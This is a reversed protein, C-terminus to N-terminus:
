PREMLQQEKKPPYTLSGGALKQRIETDDQILLCGTERIPILQM